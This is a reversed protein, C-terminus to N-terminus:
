GPTSRRSRLRGCSTRSIHQHRHNRRRYGSRPDRHVCPWYPQPNPEPARCHGPDRLVDPVSVNQWASTIPWARIGLASGFRFPQSHAVPCGRRCTLNIMWEIIPQHRWPRSRWICAKSACALPHRRTHRYVGVDLRRSAGCDLVACATSHDPTCHRPACRGSM